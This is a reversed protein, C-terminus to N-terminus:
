NIFRVNNTWESEINIWCHMSSNETHLDDVLGGVSGLNDSQVCTGNLAGVPGLNGYAM